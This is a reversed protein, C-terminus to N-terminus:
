LDAQSQVVKSSEVVNGSAISRFNSAGNRHLHSRRVAVLDSPDNVVGNNSQPRLLVKPMSSPNPDSITTDPALHNTKIVVPNNIFPNIHAAATTPIIIVVIIIPTITGRIRFRTQISIPTPPTPLFITTTKLHHLTTSTITITTESPTFPSSTPTSPLDTPPRRPLRPSPPLTLLALLALLLLFLLSLPEPTRTIRDFLSPLPTTINYPNRPTRALYTREYVGKKENM